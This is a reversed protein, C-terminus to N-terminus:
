SREAEALDHLTGFRESNTEFFVRIAKDLRAFLQHAMLEDTTVITYNETKGSVCGHDDTDPAGVDADRMLQLEVAFRFAESRDIGRCLTEAHGEYRYAHPEHATTQECPEVPRKVECCIPLREPGGSDRHDSWAHGCALHYIEAFARPTM